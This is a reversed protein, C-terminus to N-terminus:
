DQALEVYHRSHSRQHNGEDRQAKFWIRMWDATIKQQLTFAQETPCFLTVTLEVKAFQNTHLEVSPKTDIFETGLHREIVAKYREAVDYFHECHKDAILQFEPILEFCNVVPENVVSFTHLSYRRLFNFNRVSQTIIQSNPIYVHKGTYSFSEIDVELLTTKAWDMDIVEGVTQNLQIWDGVRFPRASLYYIFGTFCQIFERTAFVIAVMFAAISIALTQIESSWLTMLFIILVANSIQDLINILHRRDEGQRRSRRQIIKLSFRKIVVFMLIVLISSVLKYEGAYELVTSLYTTFSETMIFTYVRWLGFVFGFATIYRLLM